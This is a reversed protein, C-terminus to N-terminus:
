ANSGISGQASGTRAPERPADERPRLIRLRLIRVINVPAELTELKAGVVLFGLTRLFCWRLLIVKVVRGREVQELFGKGLPDLNNQKAMCIALKAAIPRKGKGIDKIWAGIDRIGNVADIM